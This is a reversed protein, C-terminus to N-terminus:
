FPEEDEPRMAPIVPDHDQADYYMKDLLMKLLEKRFKKESKYMNTYVHIREDYEDPCVYKFQIFNQEGESPFPTDPKTATNWFLQSLEYTIDGVRKLTIHIRNKIKM